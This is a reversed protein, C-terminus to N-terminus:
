NIFKKLKKNNAIIKEMDGKRRELKSIKVKGKAHKKFEQVAQNVSVGKGYGCNLITSIHKKDNNLIM